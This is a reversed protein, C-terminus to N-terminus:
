KEHYRPYQSHLHRHFDLTDPTYEHQEGPKIETMKTLGTTYISKLQHLEENTTYLQRRYSNLQDTQQHYREELEAKTKESRELANTLTATTTTLKHIAEILHSHQKHLDDHELILNM